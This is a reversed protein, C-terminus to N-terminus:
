LGYLAAAPLTLSVWLEGRNERRVVMIGRAVLRRVVRLEKAGAFYAGANDGEWNNAAVAVAIRGFGSTPLKLAM